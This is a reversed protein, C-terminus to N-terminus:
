PALEVRLVELAARDCPYCRPYIEDTRRGLSGSSTDFSVAAAMEVVGLALEIFAREPECEGALLGAAAVVGREISDQHALWLRSQRERPSAALYDRWPGPAGRHAAALDAVLFGNVISWWPSGGDDCLRGSRIEWEQFDWLARGLGLRHRNNGPWRTFFGDLVERRHGVTYRLSRQAQPSGSAPPVSGPPASGTPAGAQLSRDHHSM